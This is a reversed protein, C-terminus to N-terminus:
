GVVHSWTKCHVIDRITSPVVNYRKALKVYGSKGTAHEARIDRIDQETLKARNNDEGVGLASREKQVRDAVNDDNTGLFLHEPRVCAPNDCKHLVHMDKPIEGYTMEYSVRHARNMKGERWFVGYGKHPLKRALWEWCDKSKDVKSWFREELSRQVM